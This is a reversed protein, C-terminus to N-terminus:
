RKMKVLLAVPFSRLVDSVRSAGGSQEVGTLVNRWEGEPIEVTTDDWNGRLQWNLRPTMVVVDQGRVFGTFHKQRSGRAALPAYDAGDSFAEPRERRVRLAHWVTWLKPLGEDIRQWVQVCDLKPLEGLLRRRVDYNVPRRNDPDVLSLDWLEQGQYTDPIGPATCKLLVQALSNIRGPEVLPAVFAEVDRLFTRDAYLAEIFTRLATEFQENPALWSTRQKAERCAKEMYPLLRDPEIPWAGIMTQYLFYETNRDPMSETKYKAAASSWHKLTREWLEPMESLL